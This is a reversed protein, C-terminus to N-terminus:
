KVFVDMKRVYSLLAYEDYVEIHVEHQATENEKGNLTGQISQMIEKENVKKTPCIIEIRYNDSPTILFKLEERITSKIDALTPPCVFDIPIWSLTAKISEPDNVYRERLEETVKRATLSTKVLVMGPILLEVEGKQDGLSRLIQVIENKASLYGATSDYSVSLHHMATFFV